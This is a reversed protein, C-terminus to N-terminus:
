KRFRRKIAGVLLGFSISLTVSLATIAAIRPYAIRFYSLRNDYNGCGAPQGRVVFQADIVRTGSCSSAMLEGDHNNAYVVYTYGHFFSFDCNSLQSSIVVSERRNGKLWRSTEFITAERSGWTWPGTAKGIFVVDANAFSDAESRTVCDCAMATASAMALILTVFIVKRLMPM